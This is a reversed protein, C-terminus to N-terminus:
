SAARRSGMLRARLGDLQGVIEELEDEDILLQRHKRGASALAERGEPTKSAEAMFADLFSALDAGQSAVLAALEDHEEHEPGRREMFDFVLQVTAMTASQRKVLAAIYLWCRGHRGAVRIATKLKEPSATPGWTYGIGPISLIEHRHDVTRAYSVVERLQRTNELGL